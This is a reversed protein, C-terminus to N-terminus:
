IILRSMDPYTITYYFEKLYVAFGGHTDVYFSIYADDKVTLIESFNFTKYDSSVKGYNKTALIYSSNAMNQSYINTHLTTSHMSFDTSFKFQGDIKVTIEQKSGLYKALNIRYWFYSTTPVSVDSDVARTQKYAVDVREDMIEKYWGAKLKKGTAPMTKSSYVEGEEDYWNAFIHGTREPKPLTVSQGAAVSIDAVESGGNEDFVLKAQWVAKLTVSEEPMTAYTAAAGSEDAWNLFKYLEREPKPLTVSSNAKAVIPPLKGGGNADLEIVPAWEKAYLTMDDDIIGDYAAGGQTKSWSLVAKGSNDRVNYILDSVETGYEVELTEASAVGGFDLNVTYQKIDFGAYLTVGTDLTFNTENFTSVTPLLGDKDAVKVGGCNAKTFWGSFVKHAATVNKPLEPLKEGYTAQIEREGSVEGGQYDLVVSYKKPEYRVFLVMNQDGSFTSLSSGDSSIYQTGGTQADFLGVFDYGYKTPINEISYPMGQTVDITHTGAGDTYQLVYNKPSDDVFLGCGSFACTGTLLVSVAAMALRKVFKM